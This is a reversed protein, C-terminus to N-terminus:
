ITLILRLDYTYNSHHKNKDIVNVGTMRRWKVQLELSRRQKETQLGHEQQRRLEEASHAADAMAKKANDEASRLENM